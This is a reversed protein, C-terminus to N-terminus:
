EVKIKPFVQNDKWELIRKTSKTEIWETEYEKTEGIESKYLIKGKRGGKDNPFIYEEVFWYADADAVQTYDIAKILENGDYFLYIGGGNVGCSEALYNIEFISKINDLGKNGNSKISFRATLLQSINEIYEMDNELVRTKLLLNKESKKLSILYILNGSTTKDLSIFSGLVFGEKDQIKVKYWPSEIGDFEMKADSKEIIEVKDGIKLLSLVNSETNPKDRFKVDNGFMYAIEGNKFEYNESLYKTDQGFGIKSILIFIILLKKM